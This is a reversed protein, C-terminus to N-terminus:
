ADNAEGPYRARKEKDLKERVAETIWANRSFKDPRYSRVEDIAAWLEPSLRLNNRTRPAPRPPLSMMIGNPAM